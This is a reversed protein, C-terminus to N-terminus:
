SHHCSAGLSQPIRAVHVIVEDPYDCRQDWCRSTVEEHCRVSWKGAVLDVLYATDKPVRRDFM